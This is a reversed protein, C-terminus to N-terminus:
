YISWCKMIIVNIIHRGVYVYLYSGISIHLVKVLIIYKCMMELDVYMWDM